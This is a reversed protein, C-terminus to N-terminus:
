TRPSQKKSLIVFYEAKCPKNHTQQAQVFGSSDAQGRYAIAKSQGPDADILANFLADILANANFLAFFRCFGCRKDAFERNM